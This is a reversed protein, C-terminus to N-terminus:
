KPTTKFQPFSDGIKYYAGKDKMFIHKGSKVSVKGDILGAHIYIREHGKRDWSIPSGCIACFSRKTDTSSEYSTLKKKTKVSFSKRPIGIFTGYTGYNKRCQTCHCFWVDDLTSTISFSVGGCLCSGKLKHASLAM